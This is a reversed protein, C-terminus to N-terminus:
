RGEVIGEGIEDRIGDRIGQETGQRCSSSAEEMEEASCDGRRREIAARACGSIRASNFNSRFSSLSQRTSVIRIATVSDPVHPEAPDSGIGNGM